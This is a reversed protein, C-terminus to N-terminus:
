EAYVTLTPSVIYRYDLTSAASLTYVGRPLAVNAKGEEDTVAGEIPIIEGDEDLTGIALADMPLTKEELAPSAGYYMFYYGRVFAEFSEGAAVHLETIRQGSSSAFFCAQDTFMDDAFFFFKVEDGDAVPAHNIFFGLYEGFVPSIQGDNPLLDNVSFGVCVTPIGFMMNITGSKSIDVYDRFGEASQPGFAELHMAVLCDMVSVRGEIENQFGYSEAFHEEAIIERPLFLFSNEIQASVRVRARQNM